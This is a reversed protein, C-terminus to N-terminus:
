QKEERDHQPPGDPQSPSTLYTPPSHGVMPVSPQGCLRWALERPRFPKTVYDDAGAEFARVQEDEHGVASLVIMPMSSWERLRRCVKVGDGDPLVLEM